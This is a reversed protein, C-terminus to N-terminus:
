FNSLQNLTDKHQAKILLDKWSQQDWDQCFNKFRQISENTYEKYDVFYDFQEEFYDVDELSSLFDYVEDFQHNKNKGFYTGIRVVLDQLHEPRVISSNSLKYFQLLENNIKIYRYIHSVIIRQLFGYEELQDIIRLLSREELKLLMLNNLIFSSSVYIYREGDIYKSTIKDKKKPNTYLDVLYSLLYYRNLNLKINELGNLREFQIIAKDNIYTNWNYNESNHKKM